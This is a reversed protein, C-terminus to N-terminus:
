LNGRTKGEGIDAFLEVLEQLLNLSVREEKM